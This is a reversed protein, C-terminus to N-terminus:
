FRLCIFCQFHMGSIFPHVKEHAGADEQCELKFVKFFSWLRCFLESIPQFGLSLPPFSFVFTLHFSHSIPQSFVIEFASLFKHFTLFDSNILGLSEVSNVQWFLRSINQFYMLSFFASLILIHVEIQLFSDTLHLVFNNEISSILTPSYSSLGILLHSASLRISSLRHFPQRHYVLVLRHYSSLSLLIM